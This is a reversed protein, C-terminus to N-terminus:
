VKTTDKAKCFNQLEILDWKNIRSRLDYAMPTKNQFKAGGIYELTEGNDRRSSEIFRTKHPPEQYV